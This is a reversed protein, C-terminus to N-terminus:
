RRMVRVADEVATALADVDAPENYLAFSARATAAVGLHQMLPQCCHHGARLAVDHEAAVQAIDHPHVGDITFSLIANRAAPPDQPLLRLGPVSQLASAARGTLEALHEAIQPRGVGDLYRAAAAFGAAGVLNPSGAEFRQPISSWLADDDRVLDVMGGGLSVPETEALRESRAWLAGIGTPGHMKHASFALFDCDLKTVDVPRHAVTQAADVLVPIGHRHAEATIARVPTEVGLVNSQHTLAILRTRPDFLGDASELDLRGDGHLEIVRLEAGTERCVRQWPLWNAHHEMRTVWVRDAASLRQHLWGAAVLNISDTASRTFILENPDASGVFGAVAARAQEYTDSAEEAWPYLGRHVPGLGQEVVRTMADIVPRPQQTTAANDLYHVAPRADHSTARSREFAPFDRRYREFADTTSATVLHLHNQTAAM